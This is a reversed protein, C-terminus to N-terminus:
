YLLTFIVWGSNEEKGDLFSYKAMLAMMVEMLDFRDLCRELMRYDAATREDGDGHEVVVDDM